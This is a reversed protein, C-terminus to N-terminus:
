LAYADSSIHLWHRCEAAFSSRYAPGGVARRAKPSTRQGRKASQVRPVVAVSTINQHARVFKLMAPVVARPFIVPYASKKYDSHWTSLKPGVSYIAVLTESRCPWHQVSRPLFRPLLPLTVCWIRHFTDASGRKAHAIATGATACFFTTLAGGEAATGSDGEHAVVRGLCPHTLGSYRAWSFAWNSALSAARM